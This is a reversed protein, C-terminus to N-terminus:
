GSVDPPIASSKAWEDDTLGNPYRWQSRYYRKHNHRGANM